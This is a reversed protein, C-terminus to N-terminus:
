GELPPWTDAAGRTATKEVGVTPVDAPRWITGCGGCQHSRHPPNFWGIAPAPADVHQLGCTPCHLVMPIPPTDQGGPLQLRIVVTPLPCLYLTRRKRDYYAGFFLDFWKWTLSFKM